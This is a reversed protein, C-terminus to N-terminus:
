KNVALHKVVQFIIEEVLAAEFEVLVVVGRQKESLRKMVDFDAASLDSLFEEMFSDGKAAASRAEIKARSWRTRHFEKFGDYALGQFLVLLMERYEFDPLVRATPASTRGAMPFITERERPNEAKHARAEAAAHEKRAARDNEVPKPKDAIQLFISTTDMNGCKAFYGVILDAMDYDRLNMLVLTTSITQHVMSPSNGYTYCRPETAYKQLVEELSKKPVPLKRHQPVRMWHCLHKFDSLGKDETTYELGIWPLARFKLANNGSGPAQQRLTSLIEQVTLM